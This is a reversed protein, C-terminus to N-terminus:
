DSEGSVCKADAAAASPRADTALEVIDFDLNDSRVGPPGSLTRAEPPLTGQWVLQDDVWATLSDGAIAARLTHPNGDQLLPLAPTPQAAKVKTYGGAGCDAHTRAGPNSKVSVEIMPRPDLRWMVYVLNCGNVARLKLGLQRRLEGSSLARQEVTSGHVLVKLTAADGMRGLAVARFTPVTVRKGDLKGKTVCLPPAATLDPARAQDSRACARGCGTGAIAMM